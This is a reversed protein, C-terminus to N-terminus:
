IWRECYRYSTDAKNKKKFLRLQQPNKFVTRLWIHLKGTSNTNHINEMSKRIIKFSMNGFPFVSWQTTCPLFSLSFVALCIDPLLKQKMYSMVLCLQQYLSGSPLSLWQFTGPYLCYCFPIPKRSVDEHFALNCIIIKLLAKTFFELILMESLFGSSIQPLKQFRLAKKRDPLPYTFCFLPTLLLILSPMKARCHRQQTPAAWSWHYLIFINM